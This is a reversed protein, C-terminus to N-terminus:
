LNEAEELKKNNVKNLKVKISKKSKKDEYVRGQNGMGDYDVTDPERKKHRTYYSPYNEKASKDNSNTINWITLFMYIGFFIFGVIFM